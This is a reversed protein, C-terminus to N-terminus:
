RLQRLVQSAQEIARRPSSLVPVRLDAPDMADVVRAMSAQALVVVDVESMLVILNEQVIRDHTAPDGSSVAEFAGECLCAVVECQRDARIARTRILDITPELTSSLTAAVGIRRGTQVAEDAMAEDIRLVPLDVAARAAEVGPGISSCTVLVVDAGGQKASQVYGVLRQVTLPSLEGDRITNKLLSEDVINFVDTGDLHEQCLKQFVPILVPATHILALTKAM